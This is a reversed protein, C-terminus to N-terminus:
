RLEHVLEASNSRFKLWSQNAFLSRTEAIRSAESKLASVLSTGWARVFALLYSTRTLPNFRHQTVTRADEISLGLLISDPEYKSLEILFSFLQQELRYDAVAANIIEINKFRRWRHNPLNLRQDLLRTLTKSEPVGWGLINSNGLVFIRYTNKPKKINFERNRFGYSNTQISVGQISLASLPRQVFGRPDSSIRQLSTKYRWFEIDSNSFQSYWTRLVAEAAVLGAILALVIFSIQSLNKKRLKTLAKKFKRM